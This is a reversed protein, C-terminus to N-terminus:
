TMERNLAVTTFNFMSPNIVADYGNDTISISDYIMDLMKNYDFMVETLEPAHYKSEKLQRLALEDM